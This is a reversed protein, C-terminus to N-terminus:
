RRTPFLGPLSFGNSEKNMKISQVISEADGKNKPYYHLRAGSYIILYLKKDKKAGVTFGERLLGDETTFLFEV